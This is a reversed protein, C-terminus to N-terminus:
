SISQTFVDVFEEFTDTQMLRSTKDISSYLDIIIDLADRYYAMEDKAIGILLVFHVKHRGWPIATDNHLAAIFSSDSYGGISHPIALADTFATSSVKERQHVDKIFEETALGQKVCLNGLYDIYADQDGDLYVNRAFLEPRLMSKLFLRAKEMRRSELLDSIRDRIKRLNQKTLIPGILIKLGHTVPVDITTIVVDSEPSSALYGDCSMVGIISLDDSLASKLDDVLKRAFDHYEEVIVICSLSNAPAAAREFYAGLHFAIFAIENEGIEIDYTVSFRHSLYVAMDYVPAYEQKIQSALPNPYSVHYVARQYANHMHLVLQLKMSDDIANPLNYRRATDELIGVVTNVFEGDIAESLNDISLENYSYREISLAILLLIQQYDPDPISCGFEDEFYTAISKACRTIEREQKFRSVVSNADIDDRDTLENNSTLRIIIVLLHVLLNSLAFDNIFLGSRQCIEVLNSLIGQVNFDPFLTELTKTSTFYGYVNHTALHGLLKRKDREKGQLEIQYDHIQISLGFQPLIRRVQPMVSGAITSESICLSEALDFISIPRSAKILCSLVYNCRSELDELSGSTTQGDAEAHFASDNSRDTAVLRYGGSSSDIRFQGQENVESVYNRVSREGIGLIKSLVSAPVRSTAHQLVDILRNIRETKRSAM